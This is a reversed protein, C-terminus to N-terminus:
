GFCAGLVSLVEEEVIDETIEDLTYVSRQGACSSMVTSVKTWIEERASDAIFSIAPREGPKARQGNPLIEIKIHASQTNGQLDHLETKQTIEFGHGRSKLLGGLEEFCPRITENIKLAFNDLFKKREKQTRQQRRIIEIQKQKYTDLICKLKEKTESKM